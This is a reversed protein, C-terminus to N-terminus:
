RGMSARLMAIDRTPGASPMNYTVNWTNNEVQSRPTVDVREGPSLNVTYPRDGMGRGPVIFSGGEAYGYASAQGAYRAGEAAQAASLGNARMRDFANAADQAANAARQSNTILTNTMKTNEASIGAFTGTYIQQLTQQNATATTAVEAQQKNFSAMTGQLATGFQGDIKIIGATVLEYADKAKLGSIGTLKELEGTQELVSLATQLKLQELHEKQAAEEEARAADLKAQKEKTTKDLIALEEGAEKELTGIKEKRKREVQDLEYQLDAAQGVKANRILEQRREESQKNVEAIKEATTKEIDTKTEAQDRILESSKDLYEGQAELADKQMDALDNFYAAEVDMLARRQKEQEQMQKILEETSEANGAQAASNTDIAASQETYTDTAAKAAQVVADQGFVWEAQLVLLQGQQTLWSEFQSRASDAAATFLGTAGTGATLADFFSQMPGLNNDWALAGEELARIMSTVWDIGEAGPGTLLSGFAVQFDSVAATYKEQSGAADSVVGGLEEVKKRGEILAANLFAQKKEGETLQEASKGLSQAYIRYAEELKLTIGLNDLILPSNRGLATSLDDLSKTASQGMANGLTVAIKALEAFDGKDSVIGFMMAKNAAAMADMKSITYGSAEQISKVIASGTTDFEGAMANTARGLREAAAASTFSSEVFQGLQNVVAGLALTAGLEGALSKMESSFSTAGKQAKKANEDLNDFGVGAQKLATILQSADGSLTIKVQEAM